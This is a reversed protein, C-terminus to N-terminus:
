EEPNIQHKVPENSFDFETTKKVVFKCRESKTASCETEVCDVVAEFYVSFIGAFIGRLFHDVPFLAKGTLAAAVPSSNVVMIARKNQKDVDLESILGWGSSSFYDQLLSLGQEGELKFDVGFGVRVTKAMASKVTYYIKKNFDHDNVLKESLLLQIPVMVFPIGMLYFNNHQYKLGGVFIYKDYFRNLM